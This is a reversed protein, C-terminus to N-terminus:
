LEFRAGPIATERRLAIRAVGNCSIVIRVIRFAYQGFRGGKRSQRSLELGRDVFLGTDAAAL